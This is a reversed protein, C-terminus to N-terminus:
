ADNMHTELWGQYSYIKWGERSSKPESNVAGYWTGPMTLQSLAEFTYQKRIYTILYGDTKYDASEFAEAVNTSVSLSGSIFGKAAVTIGSGLANPVGFGGVVDISETAGNVLDVKAIASLKIATVSATIYNDSPASINASTLVYGTAGIQVGFALTLTSDAHVEYNVTVQDAPNVELVELIKNDARRSEVYQSAGNEQPDLDVLIIGSETALGLPDDTHAHAYNWAM